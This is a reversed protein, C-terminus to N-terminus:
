RMLTVPAYSRRDHVTTLTCRRETSSSSSSVTVVSLVYTDHIETVPNVGGLTDRLLPFPPYTFHQASAPYSEKNRM